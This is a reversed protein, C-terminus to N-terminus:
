GPAPNWLALVVDFSENKLREDFITAQMFGANEVRSEAAKKQAAGIMGSANDIGQIEKAMGACTIALTGNGCGYDLVSGSGRLYKELKEKREAEFRKLGENEAIRDM